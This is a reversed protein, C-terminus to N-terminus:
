PDKLLVAILAIAAVIVVGLVIPGSVALPTM